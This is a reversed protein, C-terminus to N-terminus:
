FGIPESDLRLNGVLGPLSEPTCVRCACPTCPRPPVSAWSLRRLPRAMTCVDPLELHQRAFLQRGFHRTPIEAFPSGSDGLRFRQFSLKTLMSVAEATTAQM